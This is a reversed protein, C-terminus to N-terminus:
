QAVPSEIIKIRREKVWELPCSQITSMDSGCGFLKISIEHFLITTLIIKGFSFEVEWHNM